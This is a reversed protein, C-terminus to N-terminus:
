MRSKKWKLLSKVQLIRNLFLLLPRRIPFLFMWIRFIIKWFIDSVSIERGKRIVKVVRAVIATRPFYGDRFCNGDGTTEFCDGHLKTIRHLLYRSETAHFLIIDGVHLDDPSCKEMIVRDRGHRILPWMSNGTVTFDVQYQEELISEAVRLLEETKVLEKQMIEERM